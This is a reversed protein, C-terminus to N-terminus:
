DVTVESTGRFVVLDEACNWRALTESDHYMWEAVYAGKPLSDTIPAVRVVASEGPGLTHLTHGGSRDPDPESDALANDFVTGNANTLRVLHTRLSAGALAFTHRADQNTIRLVIWRTGDIPAVEADLRLPCPGGEVRRLVTLAALDGEHKRLVRRLDSRWPAADRRAIEALVAELARDQDISLVGDLLQRLQSDSLKELLTRLPRRVMLVEPVDAPPVAHLRFTGWMNNSAAHWLYVDEVEGTVPVHVQLHVRPLAHEVRISTASRLVAILPQLGQYVGADESILRDVVVVYRPGACGSLGLLGALTIVLGVTLRSGTTRDPRAIPQGMIHSRPDARIPLAPPTV